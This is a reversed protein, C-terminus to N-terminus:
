KKDLVSDYVATIEKGIVEYSFQEMARKSIKERNYFDYNRIIDKMAELLGTEDGAEVMKGNDDTIVEAVGGVRSAIVPIGTCLAELIVCPMNEYFSFMLLSSSKRLEIGVQEYSIEGLFTIKDRILANDEKLERLHPLIPGALILEARFGGKLLKTFSRIIGEPNKQGILSSIHIFRFNEPQSESQFFLRTNVVNPIKLFSIEVWNQRIQNGLAQSVPLFRAANKLIKRTLYRELYSRKFLNDKAERYYGTWHETLVYPIKYKWKLYLAIIGAKMAVHVHILDPLDDNERFRKILGTHLKFYTRLSQIKSIIGNGSGSYYLVFEQLNSNTNEIESKYKKDPSSAERKKGAYIIKLPQRLSVAEAHRRIFDGTYHDSDNPYWSALWLIKKM